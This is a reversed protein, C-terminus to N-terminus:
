AQKENGNFHTYFKSKKEKKTTENEDEKDSFLWETSM